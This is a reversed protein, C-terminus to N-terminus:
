DAAPGLQVRYNYGADDFGSRVSIQGLGSVLKLLVGLEHGAEEVSLGQGFVINRVLPAQFGQAVEAAAPLSTRQRSTTATQAAAPQDAQRALEDVVQEVIERTSGIVFHGRTVTFTPSANFRVRNGKAAEAESDDFVLSLLEADNHKFEKTRVRPQQSATALGYAARLVPVAKANFYEEDRLDVTLAAAPLRGDLKVSYM